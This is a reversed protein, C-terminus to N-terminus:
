LRDRNVETLCGGYELFSLRANLWFEANLWHLRGDRIQDEVAQRWKGRYGRLQLDHTACLCVYGADLMIRNVDESHLYSRKPEPEKGYLRVLFARVRDHRQELTSM